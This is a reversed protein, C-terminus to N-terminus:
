TSVTALIFVPSLGAADLDGVVYSRTTHYAKFEQRPDVIYPSFLDPNDETGVRKAIAPLSAIDSRYSMLPDVRLNLQSIGNRIITISDIFYYRGFDPIEAYNYGSFNGIITIIPRTVGLETNVGNNAIIPTYGSSLTKSLRNPEDACNYLTITM